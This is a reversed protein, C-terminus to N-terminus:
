YRTHRRKLPFCSAFKKVLVFEPLLKEEGDAENGYMKDWGAKM